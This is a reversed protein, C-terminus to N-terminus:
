TDSGNTDGPQASVIQDLRAEFTALDSAILAEDLIQYLVATPLLTLKKQVALPVTDFRRNLIRLISGEVGRELGKELIEQYIPSKELITVHWRVIQEVMETDLRIMAFLALITELEEHDPVLRIRRVCERVATEDAGAMLPVYPLLAVPLEQALVEHADLEWLKVVEFDQRTVLGMFEEHYCTAVETGDGPETLYVVIPVVPLRFKQRAMASYNQLREPMKPDYHLQIEILVLFRIHGREAMLLTDTRRAVFQFETSLVSKVVINADNLLWRVWGEPDRDILFKSGIDKDGM